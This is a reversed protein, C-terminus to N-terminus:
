GIKNGKLSLGKLSLAELQSSAKVIPGIGVSGNAGGAPDSRSRSAGRSHNLPARPPLPTNFSEAPDTKCIDRRALLGKTWEQEKERLKSRSHSRPPLQPPPQQTDSAFGMEGQDDGSSNTSNTRLSRSRSSSGPRAMPPEPIPITATSARRLVPAPPSQLPNTPSAPIIKATPMKQTQTRTLKPAPKINAPIKGKRGAAQAPSPSRSAAAPHGKAALLTRKSEVIPRTRPSPKKEKKFKKGKLNDTALLHDEAWKREAALVLGQRPVPNTGTIDLFAVVAAQGVSAAIEPTFRHPTDVNTFGAPFPDICQKQLDEPRRALGAVPHLEKFTNYHGEITYVHVLKTQNYFAVRSCGDKSLGDRLDKVQMSKESFDCSAVSFYPSNLAVLRAFLLNQTMEVPDPLNNGFFFFGKKNAHMHCDLVAFLREMAHLEAVLAVLAANMPHEAGPENYFRNLNQALHDGRYSGTAVGDPNLCPVFCWNFTTRLARARPDASILFQFMGDFIASALTEGSHVRSTILITRRESPDGEVESSRLRVLDIPRGQLSLCLTTKTIQVGPLPSALAAAVKGQIEAFSQPFTWAFWVVAEGAEFKYAWSLELGGWGNWTNAEVSVEDELHRWQGGEGAGTRFVPLHGSRLLKFQENMNMVSIKLTLPEVIAKRTASFFFWSRSNKVGATGWAEPRTWVRLTVVDASLRAGLKAKLLNGSDFDAAVELGDLQWRAASQERADSQAM